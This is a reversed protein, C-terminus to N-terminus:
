FDGALVVLHILCTGRRKINTSRRFSSESSISFKVGRGDKGGRCKSWKWDSLRFRSRCEGILYVRGTPFVASAVGKARRDWRGSTPSSVVSWGSATSCRCTMVIPRTRSIASANSYSGVVSEETSSHMYVVRPEIRLSHRPNEHHSRKM